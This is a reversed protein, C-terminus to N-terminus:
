KRWFRFPINTTDRCHSVLSRGSNRNVCFTPYLDPFTMFSRAQTRIYAVRNHTIAIRLSTSLFISDISKCGIGLTYKQYSQRYTLTTTASASNTFTSSSSAPLIRPSVSHYTTNQKNIKPTRITANQFLLHLCQFVSQQLSCLSAVRIRLINCPICVHAFVLPMEYM